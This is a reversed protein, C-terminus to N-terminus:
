PDLCGQDVGASTSGSRAVLVPKRSCSGRDDRDNYVMDAASVSVRCTNDKARTLILVHVM